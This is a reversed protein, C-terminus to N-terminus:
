YRVGGLNGRSVVLKKKYVIEDGEFVIGIYMGDKVIYPLDIHEFEIIRKSFVARGSADYLTFTYPEESWVSADIKLSNVVPNPYINFEPTKHLDLMQIADNTHNQTLPLPANLINTRLRMKLGSSQITADMWLTPAVAGYSNPYISNTWSFYLAGANGNNLQDYWGFSISTNSSSAKDLANFYTQNAVLPGTIPRIVIQNNQINPMSNYVDEVVGNNEFTVNHNGNYWTSFIGDNVIETGEISNETYIYGEDTNHLEVGDLHIDHLANEVLEIEGFNVISGVEPTWIDHFDLGNEGNNESIIFGRNILNGIGKIGDEANNQSIITGLNELTSVGDITLGSHGSQAVSIYGKSKNTFTGHGVLLCWWDSDRINIKGNNVFDPTQNLISSESSLIGFETYGEIIVVSGAENNFSGYNSIGHFNDMNDIHIFKSNIFKGQNRIGTGNDVIEISGQNSCIANQENFLAYGGCATSSYSGQNYIYFKGFNRFGIGVFSSGTHGNSIIAGFSEVIGYNIIGENNINGEVNLSSNTLVVLGGTNHIEVFKAAAAYGNDIHVTGKGIFVEDDAQPVGNPYWMQADNWLGNGGQWTYDQCYISTSIILFFLIQLIHTLTKM